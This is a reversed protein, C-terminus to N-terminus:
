MSSPNSGAVYTSRSSCMNNVDQVSLICVVHMKLVFQHPIKYKMYYEIETFIIIIYLNNDNDTHKYIKGCTYTQIQLNNHAYMATRQNLTPNERM